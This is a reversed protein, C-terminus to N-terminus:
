HKEVAAALVGPRDRPAAIHERRLHDLVRAVTTEARDGADITPWAVRGRDAGIQDALVAVTADSTDAARGRVREELVPRPAELWVGAFPVGAAVAVAEIAAREAADLFTGDAVASFGAALVKAANARMEAYTRESAARSYARADLREEPRVGFLRKRTADSQVHVAGPALGLLPAVIKAVSSKGSGSLGGIALLAPERRGLYARALDLYRAPEGALGEAGRGDPQASAVAASIHARLAARVSLFLPLAALGGYDGTIALYRNTTLNALDSLGRHDLDMLLFALDYLVDITNIEDSFEIADFLAPAGDILCINRLHLDGHCRRVEGDRARADLVSRSRELADEVAETWASVDAAGFRSPVGARLARANAEIVKRIAAVGDDGRVADASAHLDAIADAAQRLLIPTLCGSKALEDFVSRQDFRRMEVLWEVPRGAGGLSLGGGASRAVPVVGVYIKPATRRNIEVEAECFRRRLDLTSYDLYATKVARKLKYAREGALFVVSIHTDIRDVLEVGYTDPRALFEVVESQDRSLASACRKRETPNAV